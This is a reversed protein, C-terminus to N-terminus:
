AREIQVERISFGDPLRGADVLSSKRAHHWAERETNFARSIQEDNCFLAWMM